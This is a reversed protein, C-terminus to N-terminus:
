PGFASVGRPPAVRIGPKHGCAELKDSVVKLATEPCNCDISLHTLIVQKTSPTVLRSLADAAEDNSLHGLKGMVRRILSWPRGSNIEMEVDHNAEFVLYEIGRLLQDISSPVHGLDMVFGASSSTGDVRYGMPERADHPKRFGHVTYGAINVRGNHEICHVLSPDICSGHRARFWEWFGPSAFVPVKFKQPFPTKLCMAKIHDSHEHTIFVAAIDQPALDIDALANVLRRM